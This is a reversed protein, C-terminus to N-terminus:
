GYSTHNLAYCALVIVLVLTVIQIRVSGVNLTGIVRFSEPLEARPITREGSFMLALGGSVSLARNMVFPRLTKSVM